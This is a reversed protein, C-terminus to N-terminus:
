ASSSGERGRPECGSAARLLSWKTVTLRAGRWEGDARRRGEAVTLRRDGRGGRPTRSDTAERRARRM